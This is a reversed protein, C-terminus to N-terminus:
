FEFSPGIHYGEYKKGAAKPFPTACLKEASLTLDFMIGITLKLQDPNGNFTVHLGNLLSAYSANFEDVKKREFSGAPLMHAKTDPFIPWVNEPNFPIDPGRFAYGYKADKDPVLRKGRYLEEFKYYHAIEGEFDVPKKETGEGQEIIINIANIADQKTLIPFLLESPFFSSIVQNNPSGPLKNPAIEKIKNAIADYYEGITKFEDESAKLKAGELKLPEEPEEIEMFVDKVQDKSYKALTVVLSGGIGMPLHGPYEPVFKPKNIAPSGGIANMINAAITMHMMEEIVISHIIEWIEREANSKLSFMATLYPPITAHELEIANQVYPQLEELTKVQNIGQVHKADLKIM